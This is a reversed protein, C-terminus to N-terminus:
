LKYRIGLLYSRQFYDRRILTRGAVDQNPVDSNRSSVNRIYVETPTNLLNNVKAFLIFNGKLRKEASADMQLFGKQYLDNDVFQSVTSIRDGTYSGALQGDWGHESDKYLLSLNAVHASQGYLARTQNVSITQLDGQANRIRKSKPTTIASHTYTYNAKVGWNRVYKVADLELGYNTATGFNGPSYYIDQGRVADRQLTYEIPNQIRKYFVGVMFQELPRPFFEYRLDMNDAIARKLNPNGREQYEENVIRYPVIEFFGPRNLSRFYSARLNTREKLRYRAHLSPLIDTYIQSGTPRDEGIPFKMAYGQDTHEVRVGGTLELPQNTTRFQLYGSSTKESADYNLATAVSGLPNQVTWVIQSYDTFDVGYQAFPNAPRLQYNNYFNTRQKDRYLGGAMWEVSLGALNTKLTVNLYGALDTDTNHEWRRSGDNVTTRQEAFNTRVGLLPVTTQDPVNGTAVSYVASWNVGLIPTLEHTGQLTSTYIRQRTLRSRTSYGLTANGLIPDFGGITLQTSKTDRIQENTLNIFANYWQIKNAEPGGSGPLRYDLKAHLGYRRQHESYQRESMSTLTVGRLTDVADGDFFLSNSGRFTNQLSGALMVGLRRNLLRGGVAFSGLLNPPPSGVTYTTPAKNFDAPKAAYQNGFQEYPSEFRVNGAKFRTFPRNMFLESYGTSVNALVTLRDPADKMVMNIAGGVADGEMSPTLAKYVELRDLLEAPFIDLPVYRYRNDPSPIKVGNVLTYNYRKDMGRLIAYQGDGNSNREISIGSVRQIVNAVTLDPSLEISRGSVINLVQPANRELDRATRDSAGDRKSVVTVEAIQRDTETALALDVTLTQENADLRVERLLTQYSVYSARLRYNGAPVNRIVYSGDLGSVGHLPTGEILLTAGIIPQGTGADVARGRITAALTITSFFLFYVFLYRNAM